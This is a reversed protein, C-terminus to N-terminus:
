TYKKDDAGALEAPLDVDHVIGSVEGDAPSIILSEKQPTVRDPDRFFYLFFVTLILAVVGLFDWIFFFILAAVVGGIIFPIGAPHPPVFMVKKITDLLSTSM